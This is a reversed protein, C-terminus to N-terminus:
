IPRGSKDIHCVDVIRDAMVYDRERLVMRLAGKCDGGNIMNAARQATVKRSAQDFDTQGGTMTYVARPSSSPWGPIGPPAAAAATGLALVGAVTLSVLRM